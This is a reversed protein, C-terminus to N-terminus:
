KVFEKSRIQGTEPDILVYWGSWTNAAISPGDWRIEVYSDSGRMAEPGPLEAQWVARRQSNLRFLNRFPRDAPAIDPDILVIRDDSGPVALEELVPPANPGPADTVKTDIIM